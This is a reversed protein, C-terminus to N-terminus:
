CLAWWLAECLWAPYKALCDCKIVVRITVDKGAALATASMALSLLLGLGIRKM